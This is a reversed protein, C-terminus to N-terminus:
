LSVSDLCLMKLLKSLEMKYKTHFQVCTNSFVWWEYRRTTKKRLRSLSNCLQVRDCDSWATLYCVGHNPKSSSHHLFEEELLDRVSGNPPSSWFLVHEAHLWVHEKFLNRKSGIKLHTVTVLHIFYWFHIKRLLALRHMRTIIHSIDTNINKKAKSQTHEM